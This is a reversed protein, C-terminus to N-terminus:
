CYKGLGSSDKNTNLHLSDLAIKIMLVNWSLVLPPWNLVIFFKKGRLNHGTDTLLNSYYNCLCLHLSSQSSFSHFDFVLIKRSCNIATFFGNLGSAKNLYAEKCVISQLIADKCISWLILLCSLACHLLSDSPPLSFIRGLFNTQVCWLLSVVLFIVQPAWFLQQMTWLNILCSIVYHPSLM